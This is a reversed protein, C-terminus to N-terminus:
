DYILYTLIIINDSVVSNAKFPIGQSYIKSLGYIRTAIATYTMIIHKLKDDVLDKLRHENAIKNKKNQLGLTPDKKVKKYIYDDALVEEMKKRKKDAQIIAKDKHCKKLSKM